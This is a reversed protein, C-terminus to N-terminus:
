HLEDYIRKYEIKPYVAKTNETHECSVCKHQHKPPNIMLTIGTYKMIHNCKDCFLEIMTPAVETEALM